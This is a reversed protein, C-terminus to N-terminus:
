DWGFCGCFFKDNKENPKHEFFPLAVSSKAFAQGNPLYGQAYSTDGRQKQRKDCGDRYCCVAIRGTLDPQPVVEYADPHPQHTICVPKTKDDPHGYHSHEVADSVCGCKMMKGM